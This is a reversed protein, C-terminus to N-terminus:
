GAQLLDREAIPTRVLFAYCCASVLAIGSGVAFAAHFGGTGEVLFGTVIPAVSAGIYGGANQMSGISAVYSEPAVATVLTWASTSTINACFVAASICTIAITTDHTMAVPLIFLATGILGGILTFRRSNVLSIGTQALRDCIIGGMLSGIVGFLQPISAYFGTRLMSIHQEMELYGPMWAIFLWICYISGFNGLIMGWTTRFRFLRSWQAFTVTSGGAPRAAALEPASLGADVPDRYLLFWVASFIIGVVGMVIFMTRWGWALMVWTLIPPSLVSGLSSGSNAIGM